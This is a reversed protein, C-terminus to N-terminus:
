ASLSSVLMLQTHHRLALSLVLIAALTQVCIGQAHTISLMEAENLMLSTRTQGGDDAAWLWAGFVDEEGGDGTRGNGLLAVPHM